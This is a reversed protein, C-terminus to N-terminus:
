FPPAHAFAGDLSLLGDLRSDRCRRASLRAPFLAESFASCCLYPRYTGTREMRPSRYGVCFSAPRRAPRAHLGGHQPLAVGSGFLLQARQGHLPGSAQTHMDAIVFCACMKRDGGARATEGGCNDVARGERALYLALVFPIKIRGFEQKIAFLGASM